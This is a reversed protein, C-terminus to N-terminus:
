SLAKCNVAAEGASTTWQPSVVVVHDGVGGIKFFIQEGPDAFRGVCQPPPPLVNGAVAVPLVLSQHVQDAIRPHVHGLRDARRRHRLHRDFLVVTSPRVLQRDEPPDGRRQQEPLRGGVLLELPVQVTQELRHGRPPPHDQPDGVGGWRLRNELPQHPDPLPHLFFPPQGQFPPRKTRYRRRRGRPLFPNRRLRRRPILPETPHAIVNQAPIVNCNPAVDQLQQFAPYLRILDQLPTQERRHLHDPLSEPAPLHEDRLNQQRRPRHVRRNQYQLRMQRQPLRARLAPHHDARHFPVHVVDPLVQHDRHQPPYSVLHPIQPHINRHRPKHGLDPFVPRVYQSQRRQQRRRHRLHLQHDLGQLTLPQPFPQLHHDAAGRHILLVGSVDPRIAVGVIGASPHFQHPLEQRFFSFYNKFFM